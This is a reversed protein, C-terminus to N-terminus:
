QISKPFPGCGCSGKTVQGLRNESEPLCDDADRKLSCNSSGSVFTSASLVVIHEINYNHMRSKRLEPHTDANADVCSDYLCLLGCCM